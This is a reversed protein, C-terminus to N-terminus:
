FAATGRVRFLQPDGPNVTADNRAIFYRENFTYSLFADVRYRDFTYSAGFNVLAYDPHEITNNLSAFAKGVYNVGASLRLNKLSGGLFTYSAFANAQHKAASPRRNGLRTSNTDETIETDLYLYGARLALEPMPSWVLDTEIGESTEEGVTLFPGIEAKRANCDCCPRRAIGLHRRAPGVQHPEPFADPLNLGVPSRRPSRAKATSRLRICARRLAQGAIAPRERCDGSAAGHFHWVSAHRIGAPSNSGTTFTLKALHSRSSAPM